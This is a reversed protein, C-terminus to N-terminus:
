NPDAPDLKAPQATALVIGERRGAERWVLCRIFASFQGHSMEMLLRDTDRDITITRPISGKGRSHYTTKAPQHRAGM